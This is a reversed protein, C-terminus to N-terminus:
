DLSKVRTRFGAYLRGEKPKTPDRCSFSCHGIEEGEEVVGWRLLKAAIDPEGVAPHCAASIIASCGRALPLGPRHRRPVNLFILIVVIGAVALTTAIALISYGCSSITDGNQAANGLDRTAHYHLQWKEDRQVPLLRRRGLLHETVAVLLSPRVDGDDSHLISVTSWPLVNVESRWPAQESEASAGRGRAM